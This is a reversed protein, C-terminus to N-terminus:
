SIAEARRALRWLAVSMLISMFLLMMGLAELFGDATGTAPALEKPGRKMLFTVAADGFDDGLVIERVFTGSRPSLRLDARFNRKM